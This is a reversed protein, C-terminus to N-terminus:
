SCHLEAEKNHQVRTDTSGDRLSTPVEATTSKERQGRLLCVCVDNSFVFVRIDVYQPTIWIDLGSGMGSEMAIGYRGNSKKKEM